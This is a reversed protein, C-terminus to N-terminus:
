LAVCDCKSIPNAYTLDNVKRKKRSKRYSLPPLHIVQGVYPLENM